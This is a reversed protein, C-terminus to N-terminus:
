EGPPDPFRGHAMQEAEIRKCISLYWKELHEGCYQPHNPIMCESVPFDCDEIECIKEEDM